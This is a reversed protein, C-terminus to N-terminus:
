GVLPRRLRGRVSLALGSGVVVLVLVTAAGIGADLWHFGASPVVAATAVGRPAAGNVAGSGAYGVPVSASAVSPVGLVLVMVAAMLLRTVSGSMIAEEHLQVPYETHTVPACARQCWMFRRTPRVIQM